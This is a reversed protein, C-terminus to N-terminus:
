SMGSGPLFPVHTLASDEEEDTDDEYEQDTYRVERGERDSCDSGAGAGHGASSTFCAPIPPKFIPVFKLFSVLYYKNM